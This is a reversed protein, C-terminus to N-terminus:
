PGSLLQASAGNGDRGAFSASPQAPFPSSRAEEEWLFPFAEVLPSKEICQCSFAAVSSLVTGAQEDKPSTFAVAQGQQGAAQRAQLSCLAPPATGDTLRRGRARKDALDTTNTCSPEPARSPSSNM